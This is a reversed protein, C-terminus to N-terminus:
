GPTQEAPVVLQLAPWMTQVCFVCADLSTHSPSSLLQLPWTSSFLGPPPPAHPVPSGPTQEAPVLIQWTPESFQTWFVCADLSTHSLSSLLQLPTTSSPNVSVSPSPIASQTSGSMSLSPTSFGESQAGSSLVANPTGASIWFRETCIPEGGSSEHVSWAIPEPVLYWIAVPWIVAGPGILKVAPVQRGLTADEGAPM